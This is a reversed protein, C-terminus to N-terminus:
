PVIRKGSAVTPRDIKPFLPAPKGGSLAATVELDIGKIPHAADGLSVREWPKLVEFNFARYFTEATRPLFPKTLIAAVRLWEALNVLVHRCAELDSKALKFPETEQTYRNAPDVVELWIRQLATSYDFGVILERLEGVLSPLDLGRRWATLDLGETRGLHGEFYKVCM